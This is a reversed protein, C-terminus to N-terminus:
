GAFRTPNRWPDEAVQLADVPSQDLYPQWLDAGPLQTHLGASEAAFATPACMIAPPMPFRISRSDRPKTVSISSKLIHDGTNLTASMPTHTEPEPM